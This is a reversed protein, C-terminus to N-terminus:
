QGALCLDIARCYMEMPVAGALPFKGGIIALPIGWGEYETQAEELEALVETEQLGSEFDAQFQKIDLGSDAGLSTLVALDSIDRCDRFFARFVADHYQEFKEKGQNLACKGAIQAPLSSSPYPVDESWPRFVEEETNARERAEASHPSIYRDPVYDRM